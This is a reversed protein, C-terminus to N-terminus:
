PRKGSARCGDRMVGGGDRLCIRAKAIKTLEERLETLALVRLDKESLGASGSPRGRTIIRLSGSLREQQEQVLRPRDPWALINWLLPESDTEQVQLAFGHVTEM